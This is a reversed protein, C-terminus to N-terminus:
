TPLLALLQQLLGDAEAFQDLMWESLGRPEHAGPPAVAVSRTM